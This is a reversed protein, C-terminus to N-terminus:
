WTFVHVSAHLARPLIFDSPYIAEKVCYRDKEKKIVMFEIILDDIDLTCFIVLFVQSPNNAKSPQQSSVDQM